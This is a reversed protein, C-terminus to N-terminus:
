RSRIGARLAWRHLGRHQLRCYRRRGNQRYQQLVPLKSSLPITISLPFISYQVFPPDYLACFCSRPKNAKLCQVPNDPQYQCLFSSHAHFRSERVFFKLLFIFAQSRSISFALVLTQRSHFLDMGELEITLNHRKSKCCECRCQGDSSIPHNDLTGDILRSAYRIIRSEVTVTM